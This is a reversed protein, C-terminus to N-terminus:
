IIYTLFFGQGCPGTTASQPLFTKRVRYRKGNEDTFIEGEKLHSLDHLKNLGSKPTNNENM